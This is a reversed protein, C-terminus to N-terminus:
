PDIRYILALYNITKELFTKVVQLCNDTKELEAGKKLYNELTAFVFDIISRKLPHSVTVFTEIFDVSMLIELCSGISLKYAHKFLHDLM